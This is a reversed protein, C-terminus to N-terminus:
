DDGAFRVQNKGLSKAELLLRNANNWLDRVTRGGSPYLVGGISITASETSTRGDFGRLTLPEAAVDLRLREAIARAEEAPVPPSLIVAFEEGGYRALTDTHRLAAKLVCAVTALVRDGGEYGFRTNFSKFDDIDVILLALSQGRRDAVAIERELQEEFYSRNYIGTLFDYFILGQLRISSSILVQFHQAVLHAVALRERTFHERDPHRVVLLGRWGTGEDGLGELLLSGDKGMDPYLILRDRQRALPEQEAFSVPFGNGHPPEPWDEGPPMELPLFSADSAPVLDQLTKVMRQVLERPTLVRDHNVLSGQTALLGHVEYYRFSTKASPDLPLTVVRVEPAPPRIPLRLRARLKRDPDRLRLWEHAGHRSREMVVLRGRAVLSEVLTRAAQEMDGPDDDALVRDLLAQEEWNLPATALVERLFDRYSIPIRELTGGGGAAPAGPEPPTATATGGPIRQAQSKGPIIREQHLM